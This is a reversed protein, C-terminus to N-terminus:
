ESFYKGYTAKVSEIGASVLRTDATPSLIRCGKEYLLDAHEPNVTVAGWHKGHRRCAEAVRDIAALCKPHFADGTVGLSQSLDAPGVFLIDVGDIAAIQDCEEAAGATEIQIAVYHHRNTQECFDAAPMRGFDGDWGGTNLGRRGRPAFKAWQVFNEAEAASHIQAAMVGSGGAEFCRTVSAYDTPALRVFCDMGHHRAALTAIEVERTTLGVHEMDLWLAQFGGHLGLLHIFNHHLLRGIGVARVLEGRELREKVTDTM